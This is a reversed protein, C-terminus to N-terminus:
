RQGKNDEGQRVHYRENLDEKLRDMLKSSDNRERVSKMGRKENPLGPKFCVKIFHDITDSNNRRYKEGKKYYFGRRYEEQFIKLNGVVFRRMDEPLYDKQEIFTAADDDNIFLNEDGPVLSGGGRDGYDNAPFLSLSKARATTKEGGTGGNVMKAIMRDIAEDIKKEYEDKKNGKLNNLEPKVISDIRARFEEISYKSTDDEFGSKKLAKYVKTKKWGIGLVGALNYMFVKPDLVDSELKGTQRVAENTKQPHDYWKLNLTDTNEIIKESIPEDQFFLDDGLLQGNFERIVVEYDSTLLRDIFDRTLNAFGNLEGYFAFALRYDYMSKSRMFALLKEWDDGKLLVAAMSPIYGNTWTFEAERGAIFHRMQNLERKADSDEWESGYIDRAKFTLKDSLEINFTGIKGNYEKLSLTDNLWAMTVDKDRTVPLVKDSIKTVGKGNTIIEDDSVKLPISQSKMEKKLKSEEEELWTFADNHKATSCTLLRLMNDKDTWFGNTLCGCKWLQRIAGMIKGDDDNLPKLIKFVPSTYSMKNFLEGLREDQMLTPQRHESSLISSFINRIEQLTNMREVNESTTSLLAGIYYGYLLGKMKNVWRDDDIAKENLPVDPRTFSPAQAHIPLNVELRKKYLPVMKTEISNRSMSETSIMDKDSLFIFRARWPSLYITHDCYYVGVGDGVCPFNKDTKIEVFMPHDELGNDPRSFTFPKEYLLVANSIDNEPIAMWSSYGFGRQEYFAEPSISESSLINNFNLTTTPIYLTKM